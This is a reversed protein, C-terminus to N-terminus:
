ASHMWFAHEAKKVNSRLEFHKMIHVCALFDLSSCFQQFSRLNNHPRLSRTTLDRNRLRFTGPEFGSEVSSGGHMPDTARRILRLHRFARGSIHRSIQRPPALEPTTRKM